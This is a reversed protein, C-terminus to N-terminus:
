GAEDARKLEFEGEIAIAITRRGTQAQQVDQRCRYRGEFVDDGSKFAGEANCRVLENGFNLLTNTPATLQGLLVMQGLFAPLGLSGDVVLLAGIVFFAYQTFILLVSASSRLASQQTEMVIEADSFRESYDGARRYIHDELAFAKVVNIHGVAEAVTGTMEERLRVKERSSTKVRNRLSRQAWVTVPVMVFAVV